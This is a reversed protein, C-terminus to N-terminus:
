IGGFTRNIRPSRARRVLHDTLVIESQDSLIAVIKDTSTLDISEAHTAANLITRVWDDGWLLVKDAETM